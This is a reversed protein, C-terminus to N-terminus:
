ATFQLAALRAYAGDAAMWRPTPARSSSAATTWCWSATPRSCRPWATRSSWRTRSGARSQAHGRGARGAGHARERRGARQHSRGAAAGAPEQAHRPRHRHAPAPRGVPARWARGPLHRLGRATARHLRARLRARPPTSSKKARRRAGPTGYRINELASASFIVADQPVIGIRQRLDRASRPERIDQCAWCSAGQRRTTSACCCSSCPARAPAAPGVLAVTEGPALHLTFGALAAQDPRSPYHFDVAEFPWAALPQGPALGQAHRAPSRIPAAHGAAGDAAGTAGAARLLDGYVEGLVAVAGALIIVYVVTQGLHGASM